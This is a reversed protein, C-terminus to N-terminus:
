FPIDDDTPPSIKRTLEILDPLVNSSLYESKIKRITEYFAGLGTIIMDQEDPSLTVTIDVKNKAM